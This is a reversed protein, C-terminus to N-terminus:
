WSCWNVCLFFGLLIVGPLVKVPTGVQSRGSDQQRRKAALATPRTGKIGAESPWERKQPKGIVAESAPEGGLGWSERGREAARPGVGFRNKWNHRMSDELAKEEM